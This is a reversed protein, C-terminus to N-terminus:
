KKKKAKKKAKKKGKVKEQKFILHDCESCVLTYPKKFEDKGSDEHGCEPCLYAYKMKNGENKRFLVFINERRCLYNPSNDNWIYDRAEKELKKVSKGKGKKEAM